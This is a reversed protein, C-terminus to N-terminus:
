YKKFELSKGFWNYIDFKFKSYIIDRKLGKM